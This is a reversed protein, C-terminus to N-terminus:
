FIILSFLIFNMFLFRTVNRQPLLIQGIGMFIAIVNLSPTAVNSGVVFEYMSTSKSVKIGFIVLFATAFTIELWIWTMWDFPLLLKEWSTYLEGPPVVFVDSTTYIPDSSLSIRNYIFEGTWRNLMGSGITLDFPYFDGYEAKTYKTTFNLHTSLAEIMDVIVGEATGTETGKETTLVKAFPLLTFDNVGITLNCGHFNKILPQFFKKTKWKRELSSFQNIKVLQKSGCQKETYKTMTQLSIQDNKVLLFIEYTDPTIIQQLNEESADECFVLHKLELELGFYLFLDRIYIQYNEITDFLFIVDKMFTNPDTQRERIIEVYHDMDVETIKLQKESKLLKLTEDLIEVERSYYVEIVASSDAYNNRVLELIAQPVLSKKSECLVMFVLICFIKAEMKIKEGVLKFTSSM